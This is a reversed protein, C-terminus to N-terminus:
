VVVGRVQALAQKAKTAELSEKQMLTISVLASEYIELQAALGISANQAQFLLRKLMEIEAEQDSM